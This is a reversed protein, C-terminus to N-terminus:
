KGQNFPKGDVTMSDTKMTMSSLMWKDGVKRYTETSTGVYEMKHNKKDPGSIFGAMMHKELVTARSGSEKTSILKTSVNLMKSYMGMGQRMGAVMGDFSMPKGGESYKFDATIHPKVAKTFATMDRQLMAASIPKNMAEIQAKLSAPGHALALGPLTAFLCAAIKM